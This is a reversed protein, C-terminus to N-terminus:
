VQYMSETPDILFSPLDWLAAMQGVGPGLHVRYLTAADHNESLM